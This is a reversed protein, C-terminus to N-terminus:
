YRPVALINSGLYGLMSITAGVILVTKGIPGAFTQAANALPTVEENGLALGEIGLAVGQILLYLLTAAGLAIFSALPVTRSPNKIEGSPTLASEIGSFAFIVIASAGLVKSFTPAEHWVFNDAHIFFVGLLVFGILPVIKVITITEIVRASNRVGRVNVVVLLTLTVVIIAGSLWGPASPILATASKAFLVFVAAGASTGTLLLMVGGIFGVFPGLATEV